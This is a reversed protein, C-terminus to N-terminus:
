AVNSYVNNRNVGLKMLPFSPREVNKNNGGEGRKNPKNLDLIKCHEAEILKYENHYVSYFSHSILSCSYFRHGPYICLFVLLTLGFHLIVFRCQLFNWYEYGHKPSFVQMTQWGVLAGIRKIREPM